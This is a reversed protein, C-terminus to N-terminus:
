KKVYDKYLQTERNKPVNYALCQKEIWEGQEGKSMKQWDGVRQQSVIMKRIKAEGTESETPPILFDKNLFTVKNM